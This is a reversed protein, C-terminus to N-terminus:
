RSESTKGNRREGLAEHVKKLERAIPIHQPCKEECEGCDICNSARQEPATMRQYLMLSNEPAQFAFLDNYLTFNHPINVGQPCPLCYACSTCDVKLLKRYAESARDVLALEEPTLSNPIAEGAVRINEKLQEMSNMGSLVTSVHPHNWVWRLAWEAPSRRQPWSDWIEQVERPVRQALRGGRLPEMVAVGM